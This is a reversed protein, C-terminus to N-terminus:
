PLLLKSELAQLRRDWGDAEDYVRNGWYSHNQMEEEWSRFGNAPVFGRVKDAAWLKAREAPRYPLQREMATQCELARGLHTAADRYRSAATRLLRVRDARNMWEFTIGFGFAIIAVISMM